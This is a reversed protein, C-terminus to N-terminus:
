GLNSSFGTYKAESSPVIISEEQLMNKIDGYRRSDANHNIVEKGNYEMVMSISSIKGAEIFSESNIILVVYKFSFKEMNEM